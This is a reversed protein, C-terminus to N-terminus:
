STLDKTTRWHLFLISAWGKSVELDFYIRFLFDGLNGHQGLISPPMVSTWRAICGAIFLLKFLSVINCSKHSTDWTFFQINCFATNDTTATPLSSQNSSQIVHQYFNNASCFGWDEFLILEKEGHSELMEYFWIADPFIQRNLFCSLRPLSYCLDNEQLSFEISTALM